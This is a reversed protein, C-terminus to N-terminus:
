YFSFMNDIALLDLNVEPSIQAHVHRACCGSTWDTAMRLFESGFKGQMRFFLLLVVLLTANAARGVCMM